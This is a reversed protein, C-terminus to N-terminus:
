EFAVGLSPTDAQAAGDDSASDSASSTDADELGDIAVGSDAALVKSVGRM